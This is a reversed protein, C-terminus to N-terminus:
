LVDLVRVDQILRNLTAPTIEQVQATIPNETTIRRYEAVNRRTPAPLLAGCPQKLRALFEMHAGMLPVTPSPLLEDDLPDADLASSLDPFSDFPPFDDLELSANEHPAVDAIHGAAHRDLLFDIWPHVLYLSDLGATIQRSKIVM